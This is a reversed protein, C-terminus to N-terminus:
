WTKITIIIPEVTSDENLINTHLNLVNIEIDELPLAGIEKDSVSIYFDRNSVYNWEAKLTEYDKTALEDLKDLSIGTKLEYVGYTYEKYDPLLTGSPSIPNYNDKPYIIWFIYEENLTLDFSGFILDSNIIEYKMEGHSDDLIWFSGEDWAAYQHPIELKANLENTEGTIFLPVVELTWYVDATFGNKVINILYDDDYEEIIAPKLTILLFGIYIIFIGVSIMVDVHSFGKKM